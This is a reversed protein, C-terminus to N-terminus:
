FLVVRIEIVNGAIHMSLSYLTGFVKASFGLNRLFQFRWGRQIELEPTHRRCIGIVISNIM